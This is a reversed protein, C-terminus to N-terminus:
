TRLETNHHGNRNRFLFATRNTKVELTKYAPDYRILTIQKNDNLPKWYMNHQTKQKTEMRGTDQTCLTALKEPNDMRSQGKPKEPNDM